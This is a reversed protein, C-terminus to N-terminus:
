PATLANKNVKKNELFKFTIQLFFNAERRKAGM